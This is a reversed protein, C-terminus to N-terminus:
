QISSVVGMQMGGGEDCEVRVLQQNDKLYLFVQRSLVRLGDGVVIKGNSSLAVRELFRQHKEELSQCELYLLFHGNFSM